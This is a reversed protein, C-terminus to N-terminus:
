LTCFSNNNDGFLRLFYVITMSYYNHVYQLYKDTKGFRMYHCSVLFLSSFLPLCFGNCSSCNYLQINYCKQILRLTCLTQLVLIWRVVM